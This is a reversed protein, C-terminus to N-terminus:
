KRTGTEAKINNAEPVDLMMWRHDVEPTSVIFGHSGGAASPHKDALFNMNEYITRM